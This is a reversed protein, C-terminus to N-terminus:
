SLTLTRVESNSIAEESALMILLQLLMIHLHTPASPNGHVSVDSCLLVTGTVGCIYM